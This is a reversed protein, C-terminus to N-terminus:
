NQPDFSLIMGDFDTFSLFSLPIERDSQHRTSEGSQADITEIVSEAALKQM